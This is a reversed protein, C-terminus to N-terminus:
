FRHDSVSNEVDLSKNFVDSVADKDTGILNVDVPQLDMPRGLGLQVKASFRRSAGFQDRIFVAVSLGNESPSRFSANPSPRYKTHDLKVTGRYLYFAFLYRHRPEHSEKIYVNVDIRDDEMRCDIHVDSVTLDRAQFWSFGLPGPVPGNPRHTAAIYSISEGNALRRIMDKILEDSPPAHGEGWTDPFFLISGDESIYSRDNVTAFKAQNLWPGAHQRLHMTDNINQMYLLQHRRLSSPAPLTHPVHTLSDRLLAQLVSAESAAAPPVPISPYATQIYKAGVDPYYQGISTQPNWVMGTAPEQLRSLLQITAFGGGSGGVILARLKTKRAISDIARALRDYLDPIYENGLYWALKIDNCLGITPDAVLVFPLPTDRALTTGTFYPPFPNRRQSLAASLVVVFAKSSPAHDEFGKSWLDLNLIGAPFSHIGSVTLDCDEPHVGEQVVHRPTNWRVYNTAITRM